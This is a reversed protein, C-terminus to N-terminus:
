KLLGMSNLISSANEGLSRRTDYEIQERPKLKRKSEAWHGVSADWFCRDRMKEDRKAVSARTVSKVVARTTYCLAITGAIVPERNREFWYKTQRIREHWKAKRAAKRQEREFKTYYDEM